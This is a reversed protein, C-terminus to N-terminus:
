WEEEEPLQSHHYRSRKPLVDQTAQPEHGERNQLKLIAEYKRKEFRQFYRVAIRESEIDGEGDQDYFRWLLYDYMIMRRPKRIPLESDLNDYPQRAKNYMLTIVNNSDHPFIVRDDETIKIKSAYRYDKTGELWRVVSSFDAPLSYEVGALVDVYPERLPKFAVDDFDSLADNLWGAVTKEELDQAGTFQVLMDYLDKGTRVQGGVM